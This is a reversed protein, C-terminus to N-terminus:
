VSRQDIAHASFRKQHKEGQNKGASGKDGGSLCLGRGSLRCCFIRDSPCLELLSCPATMAVFATVAKKRWSNLVARPPAMKYTAFNGDTLFAVLGRLRFDGLFDGARDRAAFSLASASDRDRRVAGLRALGDAVRVFDFPVTQAM